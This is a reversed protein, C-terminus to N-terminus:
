GPKNHPKERLKYWLIVIALVSTVANALIVPTNSTYIGYVLWLLTGITFISYMATSISSTDRTKIIQVAQPLFAITTCFAAALGGIKIWDM